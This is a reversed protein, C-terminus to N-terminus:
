GGEQQVRGIVTADLWGLRELSQVCAGAQEQPLAVLLPGCTQPDVLLEARVGQLHPWRQLAGGNAPALSSRWGQALLELAGSFAPVAEADLVVQLGAASAELMENLHGLLGFGTIDTCAHCGHQRLVPLLPAQSRQMQTLAADIWGPAAAGAMAAAFLVGSGIGRTLLLADGAHLPGKGWTTQSEHQRGNIVLALSLQLSLPRHRDPPERSQLTHGGILAAGQPQLVSRVGALTQLLLDEQQNSEAQPLTVLAQAHAVPM